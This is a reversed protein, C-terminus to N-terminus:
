LAIVANKNKHEEIDHLNYEIKPRSVRTFGISYRGEQVARRFYKPALGMMDAAQKESIWTPKKNTAM